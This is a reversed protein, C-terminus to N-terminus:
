QTANHRVNEVAMREASAADVPCAVACRRRVRSDARRHEAGHIAAASKLWEIREGRRWDFAGTLVVLLCRVETLRSRESRVLSRPGVAERESGAELPETKCNSRLFGSATPTKEKQPNTDFCEGCRIRKNPFSFAQRHAQRSVMSKLPAAQLLCM